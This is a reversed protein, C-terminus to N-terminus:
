RSRQRNQGDKRGQDLVEDAEADFERARGRAHAFKSGQQGGQKGAVVDKDTFEQDREVQQDATGSRKQEQRDQDASRTKRNNRSDEAM